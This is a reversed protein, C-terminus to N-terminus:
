RLFGDVWNQVMTMPPAAEDIVMRNLLFRQGDASVDFQARSFATRLRVEFLPRPPDAEFRSSTRVTAVMLRKDEEIYFLERGDGRWIPTNGGSLSVRIKEGGGAFARVYVEEHGSEDSAFAVWAGDPSFRAGNEDFPTAQWPEPKGEPLPRQWLDFTGGARSVYLLRRGDSSWDCPQKLESGGVVEGEVSSGGLSKKRLEFGKQFLIESDDPSWLPATENPPDFTLRNPVGRALDFIWIDGNGRVPDSIDVAVRRGDHSLRPYYYLGPPALPAGLDRGVRDVWVLQSASPLGGRQYALLGTRSVSFRACARDADFSAQDGIRVAEGRLEFTREDFRQARVAGDSWYVLVGPEVYAVNSVAPLIRRTEESGLTGLHIGDSDSKSTGIVLFLFQRGDPLFHPRVHGTAEASRLPTPTATGGPDLRSLRAYGTPAFLITGERGWSGGVAQPADAIAEPKGGAVDVKKLKREAFFAIFRGDPSWFPDVADETGALAHAEGSELSRIWLQTVAKANRAVFALQRGDPSLAMPGASDSFVTKDPPAIESVLRAPAVARRPLLAYAMIAAALASAAAISWAIKERRSGAQRITGAPTPQSVAEAIWKLEQMVDHATQLRDDPDKALCVKVLRELAPPTLPQLTTMPAPEHELIAVILSAQSKAEFARHGTAMEYLVSGLAFIDTRADAPKGELQEPAMYQFTGLMTGDGTLPKARTELASVGEAEVGRGAPSPLELKALGFDLLKAGAKTLMINGPKLDRHVIKQRHAKDLADAIETGYRLVQDTPLPGKELREALTQGELHEMVLFVTGDQEGVDYLTCIHPHNLSSVARAEREFRQRRNADASFQSPLVKIAVTRDLRTDRARYVEGMGGAGIPAVVEYPGLRAGSTIAM